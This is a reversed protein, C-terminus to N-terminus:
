ELNEAGYEWTKQGNTGLCCHFLGYLKLVILVTNSFDDYEFNRKIEIMEAGIKWSKQGMNGHKRGM